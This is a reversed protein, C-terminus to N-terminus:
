PKVDFPEALDAPTVHSPTRDFIMKTRELARAILGSCIQQGEFGFSLKLGFLLSLAISIITLYGYSEEEQACWEAFAVVEERDGPALTKPELRVLHYEVGKYKSLDSRIVGSKVAEILEGKPGAIMAAHNWHAYPARAGWFRLSQGFRILYGILTHNHTLIFDGPEFDGERAAEDPGYRRVSLKGVVQRKMKAM